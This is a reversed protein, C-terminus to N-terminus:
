CLREGDKEEKLINRAMENLEQGNKSNRIKEGAESRILRYLATEDIEKTMDALTRNDTGLIRARITQRVSHDPRVENRHWLIQMDLPIFHDTELSAYTDNKEIMRIGPKGKIQRYLEGDMRLWKRYMPTNSAIYWFTYPINGITHWPYLIGGNYFERLARECDSKSFYVGYFRRALVVAEAFHERLLRYIVRERETVKDKRDEKSVRTGKSARPCYLYAEENWVPFGSITKGAHAAYPTFDSRKTYLGIIQVPNDCSPCIAYQRENQVYPYRGNTSREFEERNVEHIEIDYTSLKYDKM